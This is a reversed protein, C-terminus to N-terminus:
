DDGPESLESRAKREGDVPIGAALFFVGGGFFGVGTLFAEFGAAFFGAGAGAFFADLAEGPVITLVFQSLSWIISAFGHM